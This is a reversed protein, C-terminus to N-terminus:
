RCAVGPAGSHNAIQSTKLFNDEWGQIALRGLATEGDFGFVAVRAALDSVSIRGAVYGAVTPRDAFVAITERVPRGLPQSTPKRWDVIVTFGDLLTDAVIEAHQTMRQLLSGVYRSFMASARGEMRLSAFEPSIEQEVYIRLSLYRDDKAPDLHKPRFFGISEKHVSLWPLCHRIGANLDHLATAYKQGLTRAKQSTYQDPPLVSDDLPAALAGTATVLTLALARTFLTASVFARALAPM